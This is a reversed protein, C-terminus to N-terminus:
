FPSYKIRQSHNPRDVSVQLGPLLSCWELLVGLLQKVESRYVRPDELLSNHLEQTLAGFYMEDGHSQLTAILWRYAKLSTFAKVVTKMDNSEAVLGLLGRDQASTVRVNGSDDIIPLENLFESALFKDTSGIPNLKRMLEDPWEIAENGVMPMLALAESFEQFLGDNMLLAGQFLSNVLELNSHRPPVLTCVEANSTASLGMGAMTMNASGVLVGCDPLLFVKGHFDQKIWFQFGLSKALSYAALDSAGALLDGPRWRVLIRSGDFRRLSPLMVSM